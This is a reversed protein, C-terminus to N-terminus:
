NIVHTNRMTAAKIVLQKAYQAPTLWARSGMNMQVNTTCDVM